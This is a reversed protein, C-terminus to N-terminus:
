FKSRIITACLKGANASPPIILPAAASVVANFIIYDSCTAMSTRMIYIYSQMFYTALASYIYRHLKKAGPTFHPDSAFLSFPHKALLPFLPCNNDIM